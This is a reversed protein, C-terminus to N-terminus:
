QATVATLSNPPLHHCEGVKKGLIKYNVIVARFSGDHNSRKSFLYM